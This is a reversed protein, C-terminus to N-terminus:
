SAAASNRVGTQASLRANTARGPKSKSALKAVLEGLKEWQEPDWDAKANTQTMGDAWRMPVHALTWRKGDGTVLESEDICARWYDQLTAHQGDPSATEVCDGNTLVSWGSWPKGAPGDWSYDADRWERWWRAERESGPEFTM